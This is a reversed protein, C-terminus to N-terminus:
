STKTGPEDRSRLQGIVILSLDVVFITIVVSDIATVAPGPALFQEGGWLVFATGLAIGKLAESGRRGLALQLLIYSSGILILAWAGVQQHLLTLRFAHRADSEWLLTIGALALLFLLASGGRLLKKM